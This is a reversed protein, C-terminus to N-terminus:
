VQVAEVTSIFGHSDRKVTFEWKRKEEAAEPVTVNVVPAPSQVVIQEDQKSVGKEGLAVIKNLADRIDSLVDPKPSEKLESKKVALSLTLYEKASIKGDAKMKEIEAKTFTKM